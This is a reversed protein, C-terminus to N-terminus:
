NDSKTETYIALGMLAILLAGGLWWSYSKGIGGVAPFSVYGLAMWLLPAKSPKM